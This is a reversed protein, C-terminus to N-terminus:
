RPEPAVVVVPCPAHGVVQHSVSGVLRGKFGGMGRAGGVVLDADGAADCLVSAPNGAAITRRVEVGEIDGASAQELADDLIRDRQGRGTPAAFALPGDRVRRLGPVLIFPRSPQAIWVGRHDRDLSASPRRPRLAQHAVSLDPAIM